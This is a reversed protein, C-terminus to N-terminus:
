MRLYNYLSRRDINLMKCAMTKNGTKAIMSSIIEKRSDKLLDYMPELYEDMTKIKGLFHEWSIWEGSRSYVGYPDLPINHGTIEHKYWKEKTDIKQSIAYKRATWYDVFEVMPMIGRDRNIKTQRRNKCDKCINAYQLTNKDFSFQVIPKCERCKKCQKEFQEIKNPKAKNLSELSTNKIEIGYHEFFVRKIKKKIEHTDESKFDWVDHVLDEKELLSAKYKRILSDSYKILDEYLPINM